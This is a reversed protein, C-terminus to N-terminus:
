MTLGDFYFIIVKFCTSGIIIKDRNNLKTENNHLMLSTLGRKILTGNHSTDRVFVGNQSHYIICHRGSVTSESILVNNDNSRGISVKESVDFVFGRKPKISMNKLYIMPRIGYVSDNDSPNVVTNVLSQNLYKEKIISSAANFYKNREEKRLYTIIITFVTLGVALFILIVIFIGSYEM